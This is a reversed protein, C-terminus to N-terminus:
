MSEQDLRMQWSEKLTAEHGLLVKWQGGRKVWVLTEVGSVKPLVAGSTDTVVADFQRITYAIDPALVVTRSDTFDIQQQQWDAGWEGAWQANMGAVTYLTGGDWTWAAEPVDEFFSMGRDYDVARWADWWATAAAEVEAAIEARTSDNLEAPAPQCGAILFPLFVALARRQM